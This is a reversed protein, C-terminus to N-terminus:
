CIQLNKSVAAGTLTAAPNERLNATPGSSHFRSCPRLDVLALQRGCCRQRREADDIGINAGAREVAEILSCLRPPLTEGSAVIPMTETM